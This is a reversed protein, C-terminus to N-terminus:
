NESLDQNVHQQHFIIRFCSKGSGQTRLYQISAQNAECLEKVIYLGLGTGEKKTTFFPEFITTENGLTVGVGFDIVEIYPEHTYHTVGMNIDICAKGIALQSYRLGNDILNALIQQLQSMDFFLDFDPCYTTIRIIAGPVYQECYLAVFERLYNEMSFMKPTAEKRRSLQLVNEIVTNMRESQLRIIETLRKEQQTFHPTEALLQGAHSIAGLPNRIEHAISATLRGLSALKMQQAQQALRTLDELFILIIYKDAPSVDIRTLEVAIGDDRLTVQHPNKQLNINAQWKRCQLSILPSLNALKIIGPQAPSKLLTWAAQNIFHVDEQENVVIVGSRMRQLIMENLKGLKVVDAQHQSAIAESASLRRSLGLALLATAFFTAGLIGSYAYTTSTFFSDPHLITHQTLVAISAIAAFLLPIRGAILISGAAISANMLIGYAYNIGGSSYMLITFVVIDFVVIIVTQQSVKVLRTFVIGWSLSNVTLYVFLSYVYTDQKAWTVKLNMIDSYYLGLLVIALLLRYTSFIRLIVQSEQQYNQELLTKPKISNFFPKIVAVVDHISVCRLRLMAFNRAIRTFM